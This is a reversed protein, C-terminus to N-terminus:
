DIIIDERMFANMPQHEKYAKILEKLASMPKKEFEEVDFENGVSDILENWQYENTRVYTISYLFERDMDLLSATKILYPYDPQMEFEVIYQKNKYTIEKTRIM